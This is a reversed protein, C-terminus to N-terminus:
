LLLTRLYITTPLDSFDLRGFVLIWFGTPSLYTPLYTPFYTPVYTLLYTPLYTEYYGKRGRCCCVVCLLMARKSGSKRQKTGKRLVTQTGAGSGNGDSGVEGKLLRADCTRNERERDRDRDRTKKRKTRKTQKNKTM